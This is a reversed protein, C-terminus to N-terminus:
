CCSVPLPSSTLAPWGIYVSLSSAWHTLLTYIYELFYGACLGLAETYAACLQPERGWKLPAKSKRACELGKIDCSAVPALYEKEIEKNKYM